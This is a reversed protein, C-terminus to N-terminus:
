MEYDKKINAYKKVIMSESLGEKAAQWQFRTQDRIFTSSEFMGNPSFDSEAASASAVLDRQRIAFM